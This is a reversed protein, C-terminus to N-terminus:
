EEHIEQAGRRSNTINNANKVKVTSKSARKSANKVETELDAVKKEMIGFDQILSKNQESLKSVIVSFHLILIFIFIIAILYLFAPPYDIGVAYAARDLYDILLPVASLVICTIVWLIAYNEKLNKRRVLTIVFTLISLSLIVVFIRARLDM